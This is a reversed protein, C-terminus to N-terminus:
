TPPAATFWVPGYKVGDGDQVLFDYHGPKTPTFQISASTTGPPTTVSGVITALDPHLLPDIDHDPDYTALLNVPKEFRHHPPDPFNVTFTYASNVYYADSSTTPVGGCVTLTVAGSFDCAGAQPALFVTAVAAAAVFGAVGIGPRGIRTNM